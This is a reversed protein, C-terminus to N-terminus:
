CLSVLSSAMFHNWVLNSPMMRLLACPAYLAARPPPLTSCVTCSVQQKHNAGWIHALTRSVFVCLMWTEIDILSLYSM